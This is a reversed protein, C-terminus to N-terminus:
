KRTVFVKHVIKPRKEMAVRKSVKEPLTLLYKLQSSLKILDLSCIFTVVAIIVFLGCAGIAIHSRKDYYVSKKSRKYRSLSTVDIALNVLDYSYNTSGIGTTNVTLFVQYVDQCVPETGVWTGSLGCMRVINGSMVAAGVNCVAVAEAGYVKGTTIIVGKTINNPAPCEIDKCHPQDGTWTGNAQCERILDGSGLMYGVVCQYIVVDRYEYIIVDIPQVYTSHVPHSCQVPQCDLASDSWTKDDMCKATKVFSKPNINSVFGEECTYTAVSNYFTSTYTLTSNSGNVPIDCYKVACSVPTGTWVGNMQCFRSASGTMNEHGTACTYNAWIGVVNGGLSTIREVGGNNTPQGCSVNCFPAIGSWNGNAECERKGDGNMIGYGPDCGYIVEGEFKLSSITKIYSKSGPEVDPTSCSIRDCELPEESWTKNLTCTRVTSGNVPEYGDICSFQVTSNFVFTLAASSPRVLTANFDNPADCVIPSDCFQGEFGSSGCDCKPGVRTASCGKGECVDEEFNSNIGLAYIKAQTSCESHAGNGWSGGVAFLCGKGDDPPRWLYITDSSFGFMLGGYFSSDNFGNIMGPVFFSYGYNGNEVEEETKMTLYNIIDDSGPDSSPLIKYLDTTGPGKLLETGYAFPNRKLDTFKFAFIQAVVSSDNYVNGTIGWGEVASFPAGNANSTGTDKKPSWFRIQRNDYAFMIGGFPQDSTLVSASGDAHTIYGNQLQVHVILLDIKSLTHPVTGFTNMDNNIVIRTLFSPKGFTCMKWARIRIHGTKFTRPFEPPGLHDAGGLYVVYGNCTGCNSPGPAIIKVNTENFMYVIGGYENNHSGSQASNLANFYFYTNNFEVRVQVDVKMPLENLGHPVTFEVEKADGNATVARWSSIFPPAIGLVM